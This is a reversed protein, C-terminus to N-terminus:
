GRAGLIFAPKFWANNSPAILGDGSQYYFISGPLLEKIEDVAYPRTHFRSDDGVPMSWILPKGDLLSLLQRPDPLHELIEFALYLDGHPVEKTIDGRCFFLNHATFTEVAMHIADESIDVATVHRAGWSAMYSGYGTGCGLDVVHRRWTYRTAWAYRAIHCHAVNSGVATAWPIMREGTYPITTIM